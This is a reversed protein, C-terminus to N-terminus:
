TVLRVAHKKVIKERDSRKFDRLARAWFKKAKAGPHNVPHPRTGQEVVENLDWSGGAKSHIPYPRMGVTHGKGGGATLYLKSVLPIPTNHGSPNHDGRKKSLNKKVKRHIARASDLTINNGVKKSNKRVRKFLNVTKGHGQVTIKFIAM